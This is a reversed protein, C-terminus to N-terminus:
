QFGNFAMLVWQIGNYFRGKHRRMHIERVLSRRDKNALDLIRIREQLHAIETNIDEGQIQLRDFVRTQTHTHTHAHTHTHLNSAVPLPLHIFPYVVNM